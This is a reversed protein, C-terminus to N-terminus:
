QINSNSNSNYQYQINNGTVKKLQERSITVLIIAITTNAKTHLVKKVIKEDKKQM